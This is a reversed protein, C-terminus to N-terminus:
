HYTLVASRMCITKKRFPLRVWTACFRSLRQSRPQMMRSKSRSRSFIFARTMSTARSSSTIEDAGKASGLLNSSHFTTDLAALIKQTRPSIDVSPTEEMATTNNLTTTEKPAPRTQEILGAAEKSSNKEVIGNEDQNQDELQHGDQSAQVRARKSPRVADDNLESDRPEADSSNPRRNRTAM